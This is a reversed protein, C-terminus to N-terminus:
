NPSVAGMIAFTAGQLDTIVAMRGYPTDFPRDLVTAGSATAAAVAADTDAVMFYIMWHPSTGPPSNDLGGIGGLSDGDLHLTIYAPGAGEVSPSFYDFVAAYFETAASVDPVALDVWCPTGTPWPANCISM